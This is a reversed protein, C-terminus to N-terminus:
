ILTRKKRSRIDPFCSVMGEVLGSIKKFGKEVLRVMEQNNKNLEEKDM